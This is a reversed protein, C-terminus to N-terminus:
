CELPLTLHWRGSMTMGFLPLHYTNRVSFQSFISSGQLLEFASTILSFPTILKHASHKTKRKWMFHFKCSITFLLFLYRKCLRSHIKGYSGERVQVLELPSWHCSAARLPPRHLSCGQLHQRLVM